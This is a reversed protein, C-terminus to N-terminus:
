ERLFAEQELRVGKELALSLVDQFIAYREDNM